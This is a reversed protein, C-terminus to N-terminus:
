VRRHYSAMKPTPITTVVKETPATTRTHFMTLYLIVNSSVYITCYMTHRVVCSFSFLDCTSVVSVAIGAPEQVATQEQANNDVADDGVDGDDYVWDGMERLMESVMQLKVVAIEHPLVQFILLLLLICLLKILM